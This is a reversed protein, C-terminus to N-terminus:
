VCMSVTDEVARAVAKNQPAPLFAMFRARFAFVLIFVDVINCSM